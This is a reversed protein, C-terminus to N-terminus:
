DEKTFILLNAGLLKSVIVEEATGECIYAIYKSLEM